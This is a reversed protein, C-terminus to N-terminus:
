GRTSVRTVHAEPQRGAARVAAEDGAVSGRRRRLRRQPGGAGVGARRVGFPDRGPQRCPGRDADPGPVAARQGPLGILAQAVATRATVVDDAALALEVARLAAAEIAEGARFPLQQDIAWQYGVDDFPEGYVLGLGELLLALAETSPVREAQAAMAELLQLDTLTDELRM